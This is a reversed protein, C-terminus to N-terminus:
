VTYSTNADRYGVEEGVGAYLLVRMRVCKKCYVRAHTCTFM